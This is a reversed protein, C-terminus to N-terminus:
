QKELYLRRTYNHFFILFLFLTMLIIIVFLLLVILSYYLLFKDLPKVCDCVPNKYLYTTVYNYIDVVFTILICIIIIRICATTVANLNLYTHIFSLIRIPGFIFIICALIFLISIGTQIRTLQRQRQNPMHSLCGCTNKKYYILFLVYIYLTIPIIQFYRIWYVNSLFSM